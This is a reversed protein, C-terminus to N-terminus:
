TALDAGPLRVASVLGPYVQVLGGAGVELMAESVPADLREYRYRGAGLCAYAQARGELRFDPFRLYAARLVAREGPQLNLRRLALTNTAPTFQFDLDLCGSTAVEPQGDLRWIGSPDLDFDHHVPDAGLWGSVRGHLTRGSPDCHCEYDLRCPQGAHLFLATGALWAGEPDTHLRCAEHGERDLRRWLVAQVPQPISPPGPHSSM